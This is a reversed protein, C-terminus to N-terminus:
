RPMLLDFRCHPCPDSTAAGPRGQPGFAATCADLFEDETSFVHNCSVCLRYHHDPVWPEDVHHTLCHAWENGCAEPPHVDSRNM